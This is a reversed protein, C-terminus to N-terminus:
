YDDDAVLTDYLVPLAAPRRTALAVRPAACWGGGVNSKTPGLRQGLPGVGRVMRFSQGVHSALLDGPADVPQFRAM